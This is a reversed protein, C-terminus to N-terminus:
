FLSMKHFQSTSCFILLKIIFFTYVLNLICETTQVLHKVNAEIWYIIFTYFNIYIIHNIMHQIGCKCKYKMTNLKMIRKSYNYFWCMKTQFWIQVNSLLHCNNNISEYITSKTEIQVVVIFHSIGNVITVGDFEILTDNYSYSFSYQFIFFM